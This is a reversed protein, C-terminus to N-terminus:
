PTRPAVKLAAAMRRRVEDRFNPDTQYRPDGVLNKVQEVTEHPTINRDVTIDPATSLARIKEFFRVSEATTLMNKFVGFEEKSFNASAWNTINQVDQIGKPGLKKMEADTDPMNYTMAKAYQGLIETMYEQSIGNKKASEIFDKLLPDNDQFKIEPYDALALDYAEPAGKHAGLKKELENYAKAQDAASKYKDKLWEPKSGDGKINEDYFWDTAAPTEGTSTEPALTVPTVPTEKGAELAAAPTVKEALSM